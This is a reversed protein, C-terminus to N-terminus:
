INYRWAKVMAEHGAMAQAYTHYRLEDISEFQIRRSVKALGPSLQELRRITRERRKKSPRIFVMTEFLIPPSVGFHNHDLGMFITSIFANRNFKTRSIFRPAHEFWDAWKMLDPEPVPERGVLIYNMLRM